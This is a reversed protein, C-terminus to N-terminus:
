RLCVFAKGLRQPLSARKHADHENLDFSGKPLDIEPPYLQSRLYRHRSQRSILIACNSSDQTLPFARNRLCYLVPNM